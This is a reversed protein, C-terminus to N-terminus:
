AVCAATKSYIPKLLDLDRVIAGPRCDFNANVV